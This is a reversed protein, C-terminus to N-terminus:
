PLNFEIGQALPIQGGYNITNTVRRMYSKWADSGSERGGGTDKDGGFAGGIEAGSTGININAIGCDSGQASLFHEAERLDNTFLASSLGQSVANHLRMAENFDDYRGVYLVPAFTEEQVIAAQLDIDVLAPRVYAAGGGAVAVPDGGYLIKGGQDSAAQLANQMAKVANSDVLPGCLVQDDFPDGVRVSAYAGQLKALFSEAISRHLFLRRLSTCRQGSTGLASFAVAKLALDLDASPGVIIANNGGLELLVRGLREAVTVAVQRGMRTSGTASVLSVRKDAALAQGVFGDGQVVVSLGAFKGNHAQPESKQWQTLAESVLQQCALASLPTKESPKWVVTDGCVWALAANWAWVAMPFNFATIVGVVGLPHWQEMMRHLPRETTMTLGYLQRSLGVAFDCIDIVEQVEGLSERLTKGMELTILQALATKHMRFLNALLRVFEGRRPAPVQRWVFFSSEATSISTALQHVNAVGVEGICQDHVPSIIRRTQLGIENSGVSAVAPYRGEQLFRQVRQLAVGILADHNM